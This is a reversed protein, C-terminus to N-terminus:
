AWIVAEDERRPQASAHHAAVPEALLEDHQVARLLIAHDFAEDPGQLLLAEMAMAKLRLLLGNPDQAIPNLEVVGPPGM